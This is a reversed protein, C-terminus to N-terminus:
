PKPRWAECGEQRCYEILTDRGWIHLHGDAGRAPSTSSVPGGMSRPTPPGVHLSSGVGGGASDVSLAGVDAGAASDDSAVTRLGTMSTEAAAEVEGRHVGVVSEAVPINDLPPRVRDPAGHSAVVRESDRQTQARLEPLPLWGRLRGARDWPLSTPADKTDEHHGDEAQAVAEDVGSKPIAPTQPEISLQITGRQGCIECQIRYRHQEGPRHPEPRM